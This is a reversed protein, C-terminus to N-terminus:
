AGRATATATAVRDAAPLVLRAYERLEAVPAYDAHSDLGALVGAVRQACRGSSTRAAYNVADRGAACARDVDGTRLWTSALLAADIALRRVKDRGVGEIADMLHGRAAQSRDLDYLCHAVEDALYAPTFYRIWSPEDAPVSSGLLREAQLILATAEREQGMRAHARAQVASIAARTAPSAATGAAAASEAWRLAHRPRRSHLALHGLSVAVLYAGYSHNHTARTLALARLYYVQARSPDGADVAQYGALEFLGTAVRARAHVVDEGTAPRALLTALETDIYITVQAAFPGAGYTHDLQRFMALMGDAATVDDGTLWLRGNARRLTEPSFGSAWDRVRADGDALCLEGAGRHAQGDLPEPALPEASGVIGTVPAAECKDAEFSRGQDFALLEHM